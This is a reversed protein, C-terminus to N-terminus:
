QEPLLAALQWTGCCSVGCGRGEGWVGVDVCGCEVRGYV